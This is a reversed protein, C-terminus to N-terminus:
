RIISSLTKRRMELQHDFVKGPESSLATDSHRSKSPVTPICPYTANNNAMTFFRIQCSGTHLLTIAPTITLAIAPPNTQSTLRSCQHGTAAQQPAFAQLNVTAGMATARHSSM